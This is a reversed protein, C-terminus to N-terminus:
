INSTRVCHTQFGDRGNAAVEKTATSTPDLSTREEAIFRICATHLGDRTKGTGQKCRNGLGVSFNRM